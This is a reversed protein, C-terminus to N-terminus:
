VSKNASWEDVSAMVASLRHLSHSSEWCAGVMVRVNNVFGNEAVGFIGRGGEVRILDGDGPYREWCM